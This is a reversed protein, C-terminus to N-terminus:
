NMVVIMNNGNDDNRKCGLTEYPVSQGKYLQVKALPCRGYSSVQWLHVILDLWMCVSCKQGGM